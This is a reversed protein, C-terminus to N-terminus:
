RPASDIVPAGQTLDHSASVRSVDRPERSSHHSSHMSQRQGRAVAECDIGVGDCGVEGCKVGTLTSV